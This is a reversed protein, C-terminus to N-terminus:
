IIASMSSTQNKERQEYVADNASLELSAVPFSDAKCGAYVRMCIHCSFHKGEKKIKAIDRESINIKSL